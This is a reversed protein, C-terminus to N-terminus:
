ASVKYADKGIRFTIRTGVNIESFIDLKTGYLEMLRNQINSLGVGDTKQQFALQELKDKNIGIGNDEVTIIYFDEELSIKLLITDQRDKRGVGHKIANEILPQIMLPPIFLEKTDCLDYEMTFRNIFRAKEIEVYARILELENEFPVVQEERDFDFCYTLYRSLQVILEGAKEPKEYCLFEITNLANYIFHPKIQSRLYAMKNVKSIIQEQSLLTIAHQKEAELLQNREQEVCRIHEM